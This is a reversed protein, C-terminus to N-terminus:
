EGKYDFYDLITVGSFRAIADANEKLFDEDKINDRNNLIIGNIRIGNKELAYVTLLTHNITGLTNNSVIIAECTERYELLLDLYTYDDTYPVMLGGAGEIYVVDNEELLEEIREKVKEVEVVKGDVRAAVHPSLPKTFFYINVQDVSKEMLEAYSHSDSGVLNEGFTESGTEVPKLIAVKTGMALEKKLLEKTVYTKGVETDTGVIFYLRGKKVQKRSVSHCRRCRPEYDEDAGVLVLPDDEAAPNGNVLRQSRSAPNGCVVCIANFKDVHEAKSMLVDMPKFPEGKFDQDLGAIIVRKGMDALKDVFGVLSKGFFQAEDIGVVKSDGYLEFFISEMEEVSSAPIGEIFNRSHSALRSEAYRNDSSHKFAVVTQNAYKARRLRRILEESKGSFMGGTVVEIWGTGETVFLHM